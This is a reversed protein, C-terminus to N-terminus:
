TVIIDDVYVLFILFTSGTARTFLSYNSKSQVFGCQLLFKSLKLNWQRSAWKLGYLSKNPKCVLDPHPLDLGPPPKMYVYESLDGHLFATNVDLQRLHWRRIAALALIARLTSMKAVQYQERSIVVGDTMVIVSTAAQLADDVGEDEYVANLSAPQKGRDCRPPYGLKKHCKHITHGIM